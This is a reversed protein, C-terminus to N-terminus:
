TEMPFRSVGMEAPLFGLSAGVAAWVGKDDVPYRGLVQHGVLLWSHHSPPKAWDKRLYGVSLQESLSSCGMAQDSAREVSFSIQLPM